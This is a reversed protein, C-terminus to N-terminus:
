NEGSSDRLVELESELPLGIDEKYASSVKTTPLPAALDWQLLWVLCSRTYNPSMM